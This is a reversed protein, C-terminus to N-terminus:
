SEKDDYGPKAQESIQTQAQVVHDWPANGLWGDLYEPPEPHITDITTGGLDKCYCYHIITALTAAPITDRQVQEQEKVDSIGTETFFEDWFCKELLSRDSYDTWGLENANGNLRRVNHYDWGFPAINALSWDIIGQIEFTDVDVLLNMQNLDDHAPAQPYQQSALHVNLTIQKKRTSEDLVASSPGVDLYTRGPLYPMSVIHLPQDGNETGDHGIMGHNTALPVIDGHIDAALKDVAGGLGQEPIRFSVIRETAVIVTYSLSGQIGVPESQRARSFQRQM